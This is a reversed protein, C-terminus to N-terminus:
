ISLHYKGSSYQDITAILILYSVKEIQYDRLKLLDETHPLTEPKNHKKFTLSNLAKASIKDAWEGDYLRLFDEVDKMTSPDRARIAQGQVIFAAKKIAYGLKLASSPKEYQALHNNENEDFDSVNKTAEVLNDFLEPKIADKLQLLPQECLKRVEILLRALERM